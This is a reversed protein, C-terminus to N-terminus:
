ETVQIQLKECLERFSKEYDSPVRWYMFGEEDKRRSANVDRMFTLIKDDDLKGHATFYFPHHVEPHDIRAKHGNGNAKAKAISEKLPTELDGTKAQEQARVKAQFEKVKQTGVAQADAKSGVGSAANGDDDESACGTIAAYSYRRAYTISSGCSQATFGDRGIAPLTLKGRMWQGSSHALITVLSMSKAQPSVDPWQTVVLENTALAEQTADIYEALDAYKSATGNRKYAENATQKLVPKYQLQAKSLALVLKGIEPSFTVEYSEAWHIIGGTPQKLDASVDIFKDETM